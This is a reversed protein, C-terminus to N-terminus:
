VDGKGPLDLTQRPRLKPGLKERVMTQTEERSTLFVPTPTSSHANFPADPFVNERREQLLEDTFNKQNKAPFNPFNLPFNPPFKGPIKESGCFLPEFNEPSFEPANKTRRFNTARFFEKTCFESQLRAVKFAVVVVEGKM